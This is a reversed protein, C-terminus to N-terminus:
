VYICSMYTEPYICADLRNRWRRQRTRPSCLHRHVLCCVRPTSRAQMYVSVLLCVFILIHCFDALPKCPISRSTHFSIHTHALSLLLTRAPSRGFVAGGWADINLGADKLETGDNRQSTNFLWDAGPTRFQKCATTPHLIPLPPSRAYSPLGWSRANLFRCVFVCPLVRVSATQFCSM